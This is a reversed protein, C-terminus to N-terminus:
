FIKFKIRNVVLFSNEISSEDLRLNEPLWNEHKNELKETEYAVYDAETDVFTTEDVIQPEEEKILVKSPTLTKKDKSTKM